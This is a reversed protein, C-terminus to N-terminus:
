NSSDYESHSRCNRGKSCHEYSRIGRCDRTNQQKVSRGFGQPFVKYVRAPSARIVLEKKIEM